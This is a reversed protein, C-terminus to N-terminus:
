PGAFSALSFLSEFVEEEGTRSALAYSPADSEEAELHASELSEPACNSSLRALARKPQGRFGGPIGGSVPRFPGPFKASSGPFEEGSGPFKGDYSLREVDILGALCATEEGAQVEYALEYVYSQGRSGRHAILYELAELRCLHLALQSHNWGTLERVERRSFRYDTRAMELRTCAERVHRDLLVLLKRTQPPLEDLTRGLVERALRNALQIDALTAEVYEVEQGAVTTTKVERQYQRLLAVSRILALYKEHDRRMRAASDPFTLEEAFPNAVLLPRLLRQANQHLKVIEPRKRLALQGELTERKRQLRHIARTQEREEDVTLVLCRNLLEDDIEAATTTLLIAVPGEVRYEHTVLRGSQPDKGTSAITLEGESQLLKLAYSAQEAGKEEAIALVKHKLDRESMYFLSQGTMASYHVREEEPVLALVANMLASKGAASSSQILVALPREQKRSVAALYTVLKNTTEGVLGCRELDEVIREFLRPDRLLSLAAEREADSMKPATEKPELAKRIEQDQLEELKLLVKGVDRQVVEEKVGLETSAQKVFASRQRAAYLDLTDVHFGEGKSALLNVKLSDYSLNKSLGRVRYRRDGLTVVIEEGKVECPISLSPAVPLLSPAPSPGAVPEPAPLADSREGETGQREEKALRNESENETSLCSALSFPHDELLPESVDAAPLEVVYSREATNGMPTAHRLVLDLSKEAPQVKRAYENADMGRPFQVRYCAIGKAELKKALEEAAREGPEDRDYAILVREIRYAELAELHEETFGNVGYASTVNRFGASWFTLADILAECLIVEKSARLADLHFIGRRPGPLYLHDPTGSRLNPTITRGYLEVVSGQADFVPIVIRGNFHEHGSERLIGLRQLRGRLEAGAKTAKIPLRYGLTRNAFGLRFRDVLEPHALGRSVLYELAESSEKLTSHYYDVVQRLLEQDEVSPALPAILKGGGVRRALSSLRSSPLASDQRREKAREGAAPTGERRLIEVAHRFSVKREQMVWDVVNGKAGCGFCHFVNKGPHISLSATDDEHFPCRGFLDEGRRELKVGASEALRVLSAERKVRDLEDSSIRAM